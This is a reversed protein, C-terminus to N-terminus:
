FGLLAEDDAESPKLSRAQGAQLDPCRVLSPAREGWSAQVLEVLGLQTKGFRRGAVLVRFRERRLFVEWQHPKLLIRM